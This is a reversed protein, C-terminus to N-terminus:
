SLGGIIMSDIKLAPQGVSVPVNQGDKGCMGSGLDFELKNSVMSIKNMINISSGILTANKISNCIVGNKILYGELITFVFKGSTIDVEGGSLNVIYIGYEISNIIDDFNDKGCLMYTNTMRPIPLSAYSERRANGTSYLNMLRANFKDLIFSKLVGKNILINKSCVTGEDDINLSGRKYMLTGNDIVTCLKSAVIKNLLNYYVSTKKRIFDGELGHGVAEHLLVGPWGAGLVVPFNGSPANIANLNNLGVRIAEDALFEVFPKKKYIKSIFENYSYRGGGSSYGIEESYKKKFKLSISLNILPRVDGIFINDTSLILVIDYSSFFNLSIYTIYKNKKKIYNNLYFLLDIKDKNLSYCIPSRYTYYSVINPLFCMNYKKFYSNNFNISNVKKIINVISKYSINNSYSFITKNNNVIRVSVGNIINLHNNKIIGNELLWSENLCNQLYIDSYYSNGCPLQSIFDLLNLESINNNDLIFKYIINKSM